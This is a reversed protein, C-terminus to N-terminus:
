RVLQYEAHPPRGPSELSSARVRSAYYTRPRSTCAVIGENWPVVQTDLPSPDDRYADQVLAIPRHRHKYIGGCVAMLSCLLDGFLCNSPCSAAPMRRLSVDWLVRGEADHEILLVAGIM